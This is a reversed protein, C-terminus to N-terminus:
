VTWHEGPVLPNPTFIFVENNTAPDTSHLRCPPNPCSRDWFDPCSGNPPRQEFILRCIKNKYFRFHM